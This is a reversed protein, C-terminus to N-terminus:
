FNTPEKSEEKKDWVELYHKSDDKVSRMYWEDPYGVTKARGPEDQIYGDNYKRILREALSVWEKVVTDGKSVSYNTIYEKMKDKDTNYLELAKADVAERDAIFGDELNNQVAQIDVIMDCYRINAYNAVFNFVWWASKWTFKDMGGTAYAKPVDTIGAYLPVYCTTYTDDMGYWLVGGIPNPLFSRSQAIFSFGTNVTSIPREWVADKGDVQFTLPRYRNPTGFPGAALGKTMDYETGEYHDRIINMVDKVSLKNDPKIWLPYRKAGKVGRHYDPSLELSPSVRNFMSWVRTSCYRLNSPSSPDYVENFLFPKGSNPDYYGKEVAFSIVNKSYLCNEPDNLPFEGIRSKNAHASVYGDPIRRAVWIVGKTSPGAGIMEVIWAENPDGISFSEGSSGYGYDEVLQTLVGVAERATKSRQLTLQMLNWYHLFATTDVLEERGGFTTEGISVQYENMHPGVVAYTHKVQKIKGVQGTRWNRMEIYEGPEYDGAEQIRLHPHFEGDCTYVVMVSGDTSAGKTVIFNTCSFTNINFVLISVLTLICYRM